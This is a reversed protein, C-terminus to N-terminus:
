CAGCSNLTEIVRSAVILVTAGGTGIALALAASFIRDLDV